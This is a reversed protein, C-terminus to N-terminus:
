QPKGSNFAVLKEWNILGDDCFRASFEVVFLNIIQSYARNFNENQEKARHGLPEIIDVYLRDNGSIFTWFDQGCLKLYDGKDPSKDIGYCCGNVARVVLGSNSTRLRKGAAKFDDIMNKIQGSNGWNPGSKISVIYRIGDRDFELDIGEANSKRGGYVQECVFIALGELFEGFVAEEQSSLHAHLLQQVLDSALLINKARFLYPNKRKLVQDLKLKSLSQLRREHFSGINAEVYAVVDNM